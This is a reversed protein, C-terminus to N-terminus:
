KAPTICLPGGSIYGFQLSNRGLYSAILLSCMTLDVVMECYWYSGHMM